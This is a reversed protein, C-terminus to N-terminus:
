LMLAITSMCTMMGKQYPMTVIQFRLCMDIDSGEEELDPSGGSSDNDDVEAADVNIVSKGKEKLVEVTTRFGKGSEPKVVNLPKM